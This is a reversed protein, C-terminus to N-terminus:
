RKGAGTPGADGEAEPGKNARRLLEAAKADPDEAPRGGEPHFPREDTGSQAPSDPVPDGHENGPGAAQFGQATPRQDRPKDEGTAHGETPGPGSRKPAGTPAGGTNANGAGLSGLGGTGPGGGPKTGGPQLGSAIGRAGVMPTPPPTPPQQDPQRDAPADDPRQNRDTTM